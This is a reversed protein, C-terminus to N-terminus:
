YEAMGYAGQGAEDGYIDDSDKDSDEEGLYDDETLCIEPQEDELIEEEFRDGGADDTMLVDGDGDTMSIDGAGAAMSANNAGDDDDGRPLQVTQPVGEPNVQERRMDEFRNEVERMYGHGIGGGRYRM